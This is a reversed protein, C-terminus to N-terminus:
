LRQGKNMPENFLAILEKSRNFMNNSMYHNKDDEAYYNNYAMYTSPAALYTLFYKMLFKKRNNRIAKIDAKLKHYFQEFYPDYFLSLCIDQKKNLKLFMASCSMFYQYVEEFLPMEKVFLYLDGIGLVANEASIYAAGVKPFVSLKCFDNGPNQEAFFGDIKM